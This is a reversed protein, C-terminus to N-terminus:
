NSMERGFGNHGNFISHGDMQLQGAQWRLLTSMVYPMSSISSPHITLSGNSGFRGTLSQGDCVFAKRTAANFGQQYAAAALHLGFKNSSLMSAVVTRSVVKPMCNELEDTWERDELDAKSEHADTSSFGKIESCMKHMKARDTFTCPLTPTPDTISIESKMRLMCGVKSEHWFGSREEAQEQEILVDSTCRKRIQMRGGDMQVCAVQPVEVGEPALQRAPLHMAEYAAQARVSQGSRENGIHETARRIRQSSINAEALKRVDDAAHSFSSSRSGAYVVKELMAPTMNCDPDVGILTTLPFFLSGVNRASTSLNRSDCSAEGDM